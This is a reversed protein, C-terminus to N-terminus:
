GGRPRRDGCGDRRRRDQDDRAHKDKVEDAFLLAFCAAAAIARGTVSTIFICFFLIVSKEYLPM